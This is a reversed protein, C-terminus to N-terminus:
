KKLKHIHTPPAHPFPNEASPQIAALSKVSDMFHKQLAPPLTRFARLSTEEERSLRVYANLPNGLVLWRIGIQLADAISIALAAGLNEHKGVELSNINQSACGVLTALQGQTLGATERAEKLRSALTTKGGSQMSPLIRHGPM